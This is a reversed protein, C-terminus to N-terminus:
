GESVIDSLDRYSAARGLIDEGEAIAEAILIQDIEAYLQVVTLACTLRRM